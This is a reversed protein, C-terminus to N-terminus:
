PILFGGTVRDLAEKERQRIRRDGKIKKCLYCLGLLGLLAGVVISPIVGEMKKGYWANAGALILLLGWGIGCGPCWSGASWEALHAVMEHALQRDAHTVSCEQDIAEDIASIRLARPRRDCLGPDV